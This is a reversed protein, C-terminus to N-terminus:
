SHCQGACRGVQEQVAALQQRLHQGTTSGEAPAAHAGSVVMQLAHLESALEGVRHLLQLCAAPPLCPSATVLM